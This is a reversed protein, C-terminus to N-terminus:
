NDTFSANQYTPFDRKVLTKAKPFTTFFHTPKTHVKVPGRVAVAEFYASTCLKRDCFTVQKKKKLTQIMPTHFRPVVCLARTFEKEWHQKSSAPFALPRGLALNVIHKCKRM